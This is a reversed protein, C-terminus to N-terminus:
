NKKDLQGFRDFFLYKDSLEICNLLLCRIMLLTTRRRRCHRPTTTITPAGGGGIGNNHTLNQAQRKM